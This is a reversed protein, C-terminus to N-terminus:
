KKAAPAAAPVDERDLKAITDRAMLVAAQFKADTTLKEADLIGELAKACEPCASGRMMKAPLWAMTIRADPNRVKYAKAIELAMAPDGEGLRAIEFAAKERAFWDAGGDRLTTLYCDKDTKCKEAMDIAPGWAEVEKKVKADTVAAIAAKVKPVDDPSAALVAFRGSNWRAEYKFDREVADAAYEATGIATVLCDVAKTGGIRGLANLIEFMDGPNKSTLSCQCLADVAKADGIFGLGNAVVARLQAFAIAEGSGEEAEDEPKPKKEAAPAAAVCDKTPYVELLADVAKPSGMSGLISAATQAIVFQNLGEQEASAEAALKQVEAHKGRMMEIVQPIAPDGIAVLAQKARVGVNKSTAIDPVRFTVTLLADVVKNDQGPDGIEGLATAAARHVSSPQNERTQELVKILVPVAKKDRLKGLAECILMRVRGNEEEAGQDNKPNAILKDLQEILTDVSGTAKAKRIGELALISRKRAEASGDLALAKNWITYGEPRAADRLMILMKEQQEPASDWVEELVPIVKAAFEDLRAKNDPSTVVTKTLEELGTFGSARKAPDRIKEIHTEFLYPDPEKCAATALALSLLSATLLHRLPKM